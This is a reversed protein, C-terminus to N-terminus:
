STCSGSTVYGLGLFYLVVDSGALVVLFNRNVVRAVVVSCNLSTGENECKRVMVESCELRFYHFESGTVYPFSPARHFVNDSLSVSSFVQVAVQHQVDSVCKKHKKSIELRFYHFESGTADSFSPARHFVNDSLSVNSFVQVAM